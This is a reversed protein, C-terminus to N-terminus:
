GGHGQQYAHETADNEGRITWSETKRVKGELVNVPNPTYRQRWSRQRHFSANGLELISRDTIERRDNAPTPTM